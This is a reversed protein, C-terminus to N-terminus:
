AFRANRDEGQLKGGLRGTRRATQRSGGIGDKGIDQELIVPM